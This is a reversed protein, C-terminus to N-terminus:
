TVCQPIFWNQTHSIDKCDKGDYLREWTVTPGEMDVFYCGDDTISTEYVHYDTGAKIIFVEIDEGSSTWSGENVGPLSLCDDTSDCQSSGGEEELVFCAEPEDTPEETPVVEAGGVVECVGPQFVSVAECYWDSVTPAILWAAAIALLIAGPILVNYELLAQGKQNKMLRGLKKAM